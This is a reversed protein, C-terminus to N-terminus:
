ISNFSSIGALRWQSVCVQLRRRFHQFFTGLGPILHLGILCLAVHGVIVTWKLQVNEGCYNISYNLSPPALLAMQAPLSRKLGVAGLSLLRATAAVAASFFVFLHHLTHSPVPTAHPLRLPPFRSRLWLSSFSSRSASCLSTAQHLLRVRWHRPRPSSASGLEVKQWVSESYSASM